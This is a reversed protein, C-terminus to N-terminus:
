INLIDNTADRRYWAGLTGGKDRWHSQGFFQLEKTNGIWIFDKNPYRIHQAALGEKNNYNAIHVTQNNHTGVQYNFLKCTKASIKRKILDQYEGEIMENTKNNFYEPFNKNKATDSHYAGCGFCYTHSTNDPNLYRAANDRSGCVSCAEHRLFVGEDNLKKNLM